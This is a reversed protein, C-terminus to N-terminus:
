ASAALTMGDGVAFFDLMVGLQRQVAAQNWSHGQEDDVFLSVNARKALRRRLGDVHVLPDHAPVIVLTPLERALVANLDAHRVGDRLWERAASPDARCQNAFNTDAVDEDVHGEVIIFRKYLNSVTRNRSLAVVAQWLPPFTLVDVQRRHWRRILAADVLPTHLALRDVRTGCRAALAAAVSAGLCLGALDFEEVGLANLLRELSAALADVTHRGRLPQSGGNGPLDPVILARHAALARFRGGFEEASSLFGHCLLLPKGEGATLYRMTRGGIDFRQERMPVSLRMTRPDDPHGLTAAFEPLAESGSAHM